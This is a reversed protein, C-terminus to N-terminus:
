YGINFRGGGTMGVVVVDLSDAEKRTLAGCMGKNAPLPCKARGGKRNKFASCQLVARSNKIDKHSWGILPQTLGSCIEVAFIALQNGQAQGQLLTQVVFLCPKGVFHLVALASSCCSSPHFIIQEAYAQGEWTLFGLIRFCTSVATDM